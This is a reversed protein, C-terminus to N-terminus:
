TVDPLDTKLLHIGFHLFKGSTRLTPVLGVLLLLESNYRESELIRIKFGM